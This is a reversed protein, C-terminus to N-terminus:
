YESEVWFIKFYNSTETHLLDIVDVVMNCIDPTYDEQEADTWNEPESVISIFIQQTITDYEVSEFFFPEFPVLGELDTPTVVLDVHKGLLRFQYSDFYLTLHSLNYERSQPPTLNNM